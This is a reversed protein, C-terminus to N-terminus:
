AFKVLNPKGLPYVSLNDTMFMAPLTAGRVTLGDRVIDALLPVANGAGHFAVGLCHPCIRGILQVVHDVPDSFGFERILLLEELRNIRLQSWKKTTLFPFFNSVIIHFPLASPTGSTSPLVAQFTPDLAAIRPLYAQIQRLMGCRTWLPLGPPLSGQTYNIGVVLLVKLPGSNKSHDSLVHGVAVYRFGPPPALTILTQLRSHLPGLSTTGDFRRRPLCSPLSALDLSAVLPPPLPVKFETSFLRQNESGVLDQLHRPSIM